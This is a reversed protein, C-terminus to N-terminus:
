ETIVVKRVAQAQAQAHAVRVFYVGPALARVDNPGPRLDLVKRGSIDLLVSSASREVSSAPLRLIGRAVTATNTTRVEANPTEEIGAGYFQIIQLGGGGAVYAYDGAAAVCYAFGAGRYYGREQPHEPDSVDIVRLGAPNCAVYAYSGATAVSSAWGWSVYYGRERPHEPDTVDIVRLGSDQDAM